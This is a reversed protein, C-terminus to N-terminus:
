MKLCQRSTKILALNGSYETHQTTPTSLAVQSLCKLFSVLVSDCAFRLSLERHSHWSLHGEQDFLEVLNLSGGKLNAWRFIIPSSDTSSVCLGKIVDSSGQFKDKVFKLSRCKVLTVSSHDWM